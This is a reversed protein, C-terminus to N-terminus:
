LDEKTRCGLSQNAHERSGIIPGDTRTSYDAGDQVLETDMASDSDKSATM